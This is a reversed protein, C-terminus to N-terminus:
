YEMVKEIYTLPNLLSHASKESINLFIEGFIGLLITCLALTIVTLYAFHLNKQPSTTNEKTYNPMGWFTYIWIKTMSFLTLFSVIISISTTFYAKAQIGAFILVLKGVFGSLPPLGALSLASCLFCASLIPSTNYLNRQSTLQYSGTKQHVIGSIFFLNSKAIINHLIFYIAGAIGATTWFALGMLMYGIQSIIHFSLIRRIESQSVAGLVGILMTLGAIILLTNQISTDLERYFLTFTRIISYMGVKTLLGSFLASIGPPPTHYSAPLWFYLPFLGAKIGFAVFLLSSAILKPYKQEIMSLKISLDALNVTGVMGYLIGTSALFIASSILNLIVYKISGELQRQEGGFAMLVFSSMLMVEFWVYLNFLDGTTFAGSVGMMLFFTLSLYGARFEERSSMSLSYLFSLSVLLSTVVLMLSSFLDIVVTIGFPAEWNGIQLSYFNGQYTKYLFLLAILFYILNGMWVFFWQLRYHRNSALCLSATILPILIPFVVLAKM